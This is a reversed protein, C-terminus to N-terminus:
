THNQPRMQRDIQLVCIETQAEPLYMISLPDERWFRPLTICDPHPWQLGMLPSCNSLIITEHVGEQQAGTIKPWLGAVVVGPEQFFRGPLLVAVMGVLWRTPLAKLSSTQWLFLGPIFQSSVGCCEFHIVRSRYAVLEKTGCLSELRALIPQHLANRMTEGRFFSILCSVYCREDCHFDDDSGSLAFNTLM